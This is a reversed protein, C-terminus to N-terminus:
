KTARLLVASSATRHASTLLSGSSFHTGAPAQVLLRGVPGDFFGRSGLWPVPPDLLRQVEHVGRGRCRVLGLGRSLRESMPSAAASEFGKPARPRVILLYREPTSLPKWSPSCLPRTSAAFRASGSAPARTSFKIVMTKVEDSSLKGVQGGSSEDTGERNWM